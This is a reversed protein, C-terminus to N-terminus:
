AVGEIVQGVFEEAISAPERFIAPPQLGDLQERGQIPLDIKSAAYLGAEALPHLGKKAPQEFLSGQSISLSDRKAGPVDHRASHLGM